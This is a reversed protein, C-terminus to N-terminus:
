IMMVFLLSYSLAITFCFTAMVSFSLASCDTQYEDVLHFLMKCATSGGFVSAVSVNEEAPQTKQPSSPQQREEKLSASAGIQAAVSTQPTLPDAPRPSNAASAQAASLAGNSQNRSPISVNMMGNMAHQMAMGSPMPMGPIPMGMGAAMMMQAQLMAAQQPQMHMMGPPMGAMGAAAAAAAMGNSMPNQAGNPVGNPKTMRPSATAGGPMGGMGMGAMMM